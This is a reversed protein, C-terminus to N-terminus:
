WPKDLSLPRMQWNEIIRQTRQIFKFTQKEFNKKNLIYSFVLNM